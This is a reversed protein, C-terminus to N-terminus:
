ISRMEKLISQASRRPSSSQLIPRGVVLFNGGQKIAEGPTAIRQQDGQDSQAPRIGPTVISFDKGCERRVLSAEQPSAVVGDLGAQKALLARQTVVTKMTPTKIDSTLVTVGIILPAQVSFEQAKERAALAAAEMMALGGQTHVTLMFLAPYIKKTTKEAIIDHLPVGLHVAAAVAHAVTNPIDHFKLDLFVRKGKAQLYRVIFPGCATFLQSGVKFIDVADDLEEILHRAEDFTPVDLAVILEAQKPNM